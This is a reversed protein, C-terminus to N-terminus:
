IEGGLLIVPALILVVGIVVLNLCVLPYGTLGFTVGLFILKTGHFSSLLVLIFPLFEAGM